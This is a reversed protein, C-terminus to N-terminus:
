EYRLTGDINALGQIVISTDQNSGDRRRCRASVTAGAVHINRCSSHFTAPQGPQTLQLQGDVNEIGQLVISTRQYSGDLRRCAAELTAGIVSIRNCSSQYGTDQANAPAILVPFVASIGAAVLLALQRRVPKLTM